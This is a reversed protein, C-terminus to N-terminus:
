GLKRALKIAEDFGVKKYFYYLSSYWYNNEEAYQVLRTPEGNVTVMVTNSRNRNQETRSAWYCNEPCYGINNNRREISYGKPRFGMDHIFNEFSDVWRDCVTVGKSGYNTYSIDKPNFCRSKIARWITYEPTNSLGHTRNSDGFKERQFCGCSTTNGNLLNGRAVAKVTGCSCKCWWKEHKGTSHIELTTLRGFVLGSKM